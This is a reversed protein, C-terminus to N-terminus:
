PTVLSIRTGWNALSTRTGGCSGFAGTGGFPAGEYTRLDCSQGIYESALWVNTGDPVAAGYDGWRTRIPNPLNFIIYGTFGDDPGVGEAAVHVPGPGSAINLLAYGASPFRDSGVVTFAMVAHGNTTVGIAPYTVSDDPLGLYSGGALTGSVNGGASISPTVVFWEVGAKAKSTHALLTDVAGWLRGGQFTTQLMRTDNSDLTSEREHPGQVGNLFLACPDSNLCEGLPHQGAKQESQPAQSYQGVTVATHNLRLTPTTKLSSTNSLGWVLVQNSTRSSVAVGNGHAEDAGNSSLFYETGGAASEGGGGPKESPALTFGSNGNDLMHTDIQTVAITPDNAALAAKSFAYIQAGHFDFGFFSYENTTIYFGNSDAGIHPYDGLCPGHGIPNGNADLGTTCGHDPTGQTGDDQVPITYIKWAGLPSSTASVALDLHNTGIFHGNNSRTDLTLVTHFWRQKQPDFYCSPDTVFAGFVNPHGRVISPSYGYFANLATPSSLPAGATNFVRMVDNITELVFGNGVCLGQDPPELSFQNGNSALRNQRHNLGDFSMLLEPNSAAITGNGDGPSGSSTFSGDDSHSRNVTVSGVSGDAVLGAAGGPLEAGGVSDVGSPEAVLSATGSSSITRTSSASVAVSFSATGALALPLVLATGALLVRGRSLLGVLRM